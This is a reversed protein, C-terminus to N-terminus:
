HSSQTEKQCVLMEIQPLIKIKRVGYFIKVYGRLYAYRLTFVM